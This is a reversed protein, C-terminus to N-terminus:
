ALKSSILKYVKYRGHEAAQLNSDALKIIDDDYKNDANINSLKIRENGSHPRNSRQFIYYCIPNVAASLKGFIASCDLLWNPLYIDFFVSVLACIGYPAWVTIFMTLSLMSHTLVKKRNQPINKLCSKKANDRQNRKRDYRTLQYYVSVLTATPIVFFLLTIAFLFIRYSLTKNDWDLTCRNKTKEFGYGYNPFVFLPVAAAALSVLWSIISCVFVMQLKNTKRTFYPFVMSIIQFLTISTVFSNAVYSFLAVFFGGVACLISSTNSNNQIYKNMIEAGYGAVCLFINCISLQICFM